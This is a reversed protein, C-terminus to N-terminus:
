GSVHAVIRQFENQDLEFLPDSDGPFMKLHFTPPSETLIEEQKKTHATPSPHPGASNSSRPFSTGALAEQIKKAVQRCDTTTPAVMRIDHFFGPLPGTHASWGFEEGVWIEPLYEMVDMRTQGNAQPELHLIFSSRFKAPEGKYFYESRWYYDGTPEFLYLDDKKRNAPLGVYERIQQDRRSWTKLQFDDPFVPDGFRAPRFRYWNGSVSVPGEFLPVGDRFTGWLTASAVEPKQLITLVVASPVPGRREIKKLRPYLLLVAVTGSTLLVFALLTAWM